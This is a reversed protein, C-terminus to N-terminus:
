SNNYVVDRAESLLQYSIMDMVFNHRLIKFIKTYKVRTVEKVLLVYKWTKASFFHAKFCDM